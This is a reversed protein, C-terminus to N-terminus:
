ALVAALPPAFKNLALALLLAPPNSALLTCRVACCARDSCRALRAFRLSISVLAAVKPWRSRRMPERTM